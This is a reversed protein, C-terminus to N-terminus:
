NLLFSVNVNVRIEMEGPAIVQNGGSSDSEMAMTRYMPQPNNNVRYESISVAKGISQDLVSAYESAKMKADAVANKRAESELAKNNSSSFSIGDIRNIGSAMLGNMLSEYKGLDRLKIGISQNAAYNYTKTNYDYNKSLRIYESQVDKDAIGLRKVTNLVDNIARDNEAKIMKVDKGTNEVRVNITVEDPTVRVIGEGTVDVTPQPNNQAMIITTILLMLVTQIRKM